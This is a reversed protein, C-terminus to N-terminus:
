ANLDIDLDHGLNPQPDMPRTASASLKAFVPSEDADSGAALDLDILGQSQSSGTSVLDRAVLYLFILDDYAQLDFVKGLDGSRFIAVELWALARSASAWHQSLDELAAPYQEISRPQLGDLHWHPPAVGFRQAFREGVREFAPQDGQMRYIDLLKLYPIPSMSGAGGVHSMLLDIADNDQGLVLFFDVQQELDLLEDVTMAIPALQDSPAGFQSSSEGLEPLQADPFELDM